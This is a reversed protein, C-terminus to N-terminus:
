KRIFWREVRCTKFNAIGSMKQLFGRADGSAKMEVMCSEYLLDHPNFLHLCVKASKEAWTAKWIDLLALKIEHGEWYSQKGDQYVHIQRTRDDFFLSVSTDHSTTHITFAETRFSIIPIHATLFKIKNANQLGPCLFPRVSHARSIGTAMFLNDLSLKLMADLNALAFNTGELRKRVETLRSLRELQCEESDDFANRPTFQANLNLKHDILLDIQTTDFDDLKSRIEALTELAKLSERAPKEFNRPLHTKRKLWKPPLPQYFQSAAYTSVLFDPKMITSM